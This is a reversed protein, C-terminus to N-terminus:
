RAVAVTEPVLGHFITANYNPSAGGPPTRVNPLKLSRLADSIDGSSTYHQSRQDPAQQGFASRLSLTLSGMARGLAIAEAQTMNVALTVTRPGTNGKGHKAEEHKFDQDVAIIPLNKVITESVHRKNTTVGGQGDEERSPVDHTLIVDVRDGPQLLGAVGAAEDVKLTIARAGEPLMAALFSGDRQLILREETIPEGAFIQHRAASGALKEIADPRSKKSIYRAVIGDEPWSQWRLDSPVLVATQEIGKAAVLIEANPVPKPVQSAAWSALHQREKTLYAKVMWGAALAL